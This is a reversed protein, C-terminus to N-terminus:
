GGPDFCRFICDDKTIVVSGQRSASKRLERYFYSLAEDIRQPNTDFIEKFLLNRKKGLYDICAEIDDRPFSLDNEFPIREIRGFHGRLQAEGNELSFARLLRGIAPEGPAELGVSRVCGPILRIVEQLSAETHTIAIFVGGPRLLRAIEGILHPFFYLSYSAVVLDLSGSDMDCILDASGAVFRGRYGMSAVVALFLERNVKGALDLGTIAAGEKLRGALKETFFGYACGLDLADEVGALDLGGLASERIDERNVSYRSILRRTEVHDQVAGYTKRIDEVSYLSDERM